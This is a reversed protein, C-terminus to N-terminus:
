KSLQERAAAIAEHFGLAQVAIPEHDRFEVTWTTM